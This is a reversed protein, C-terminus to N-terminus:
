YLNSKIIQTFAIASNEWSFQRYQTQSTEALKTRLAKDMVGKKLGLSISDTDEPNVFIAAQGCIEKFVALDSTLVPIGFAMAELNPIGFGEYLSPYAFLLANRYYNALEQDSVRGVFKIREDKSVDPEDANFSFLKNGGGVIYLQLDPIKLKQFAKMLRLLNKRPDLSGVSLVYPSTPKPFPAGASSLLHKAVGNYVVSIKDIKISLLTSLEQQMAHSVTIVHRSNRALKPILFNYYSRFAVSFWSPYHMFALDHITVIQNSYVLPATNTLNVLLGGKNRWMYAPLEFQEWAHGSLRGIREVPLDYEELIAQPCIVRLDFVQKQVVEKLLELAFRQVGTIPQSLFRGNIYLRKKSHM